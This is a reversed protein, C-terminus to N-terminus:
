EGHDDKIGINQNAVFVSAVDSITIYATPDIEHVTEKLKVVQFRNVIFHVMNKHTKSYGGMVDMVTSGTEFTHALVDCIEDAKVTVIMACKARDLGDVILDVTKLAAAYAIISYLPLIWSKIVIGCLVYLVVNYIMVFTDVSIGIRKAFVVAMVEIGDMSGGFRIALGSRM